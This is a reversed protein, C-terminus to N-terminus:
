RRLLAEVRRRQAKADWDLEGFHRFVIAGRRDVLFSAPLLDVGWARTVASDRDILLPFRLGLKEGTDRVTRASGGMHVALVILDPAALAARLREITPLESLCPECWTAWFNVLVVKGRYGALRHIAGATDELRLPPAAALLAALVLAM